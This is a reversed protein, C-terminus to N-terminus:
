FEDRIRRIWEKHSIFDDTNSYDLKLEKKLNNGLMNYQKKINALNFLDLGHMVAIYHRERFLLYNTDSFDERLPLRTKFLELRDKLSDPIIQDKWFKEKRPTIYHLSIFDRINLMIKEM